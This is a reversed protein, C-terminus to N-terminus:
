HPLIDWVSKNKKKDRRFCYWESILDVKSINWWSNTKKKVKQNMFPNLLQVDDVVKIIKFM